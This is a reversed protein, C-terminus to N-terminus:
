VNQSEYHCAAPWGKELAAQGVAQVAVCQQLGCSSECAEQAIRNVVLQGEM